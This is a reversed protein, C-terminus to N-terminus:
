TEREKRGKRRRNKGESPALLTAEPRPVETKTRHHGTVDNALVSFWGSQRYEHNEDPWFYALGV